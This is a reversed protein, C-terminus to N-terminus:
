RCPTSPSPTMPAKVNRQEIRTNWTSCRSACCALVSAAPANGPQGALGEICHRVRGYPACLQELEADTTWWQLNSIFIASGEEQGGPTLLPLLPADFPSAPPPPPPCVSAAGLPAAGSPKAGADGGQGGAGNQQGASLAPLCPPTPVAGRRAPPALVSAPHTGLVTGREGYDGAEYEMAQRTSPAPARGSSTAQAVRVSKSLNWCHQSLAISPWPRGPCSRTSKQM